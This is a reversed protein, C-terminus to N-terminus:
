EHYEELLKKLGKRDISPEKLVEYIYQKLKAIAMTDRQKHNSVTTAQQNKTNFLNNNLENSYEFFIEDWNESLIKIINQLSPANKKGGLRKKYWYYVPWIESQNKVSSPFRCHHITFSM